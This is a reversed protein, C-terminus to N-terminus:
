KNGKTSGDKKKDEFIDLGLSKYLKYNKKDDSIVLRINSGNDAKATVVQGICEKKIM